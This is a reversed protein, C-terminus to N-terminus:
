AAESTTVPGPPAIRIAEVAACLRPWLLRMRRYLDAATKPSPHTLLRLTVVDAGGAEALSLFTSRTEYHRQGALGLARLDDQFLGWSWNNPRPKMHPGPVILDEPTPARGHAREWGKARWRKLLEALAPHVPVTRRVRTKTEKEIEKKTSWATEVRLAGLPTRTPDWDRWRRVAAEGTRMGTLFELGYLVHRDWPILEDRILRAVDDESFGEGVDPPGREPLDSADWNCPSAQILGRKAADRMCVRLTGAIKHVTTASIKEGSGDACERSPLAQLYDLVRAASLEPLKVRGLVPTVHHRLHAEENDVEGRGAERRLEVWRRAWAGVTMAREVREPTEGRRVRELVAALEARADVEDTAGTAQHRRKGRADWYWIWLHPSDKRRYVNGDLRDRGM